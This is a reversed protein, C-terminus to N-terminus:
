VGTGLVRYRLYVEGTEPNPHASLLELRVTEVLSPAREQEVITHPERGGVIVPGLTVFIEDVLGADFLQGNTVAGGEVLLLAAGLETRMHRLVWAVGEGPPLDVVRRGTAVIAERREPPADSALYVVAEFDDATFFRADLPLDGGASMVTAIPLEPRGRDRRLADLAPDGLRPSVGSARLTSAGNLVVDAHLRLERMLRQDAPSGLGRETGEIVTRGDVSEVMNMIVYPRDPLPPGFTLATYDPKGPEMSSTEAM